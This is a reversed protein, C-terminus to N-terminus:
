TLKEKDCMCYEIIRINFTYEKMDIFYCFCNSCMELVLKGELIYGVLGLLFNVDLQQKQKKRLIALIQIICFCCTLLLPFPTHVVVSREKSPPLKLM